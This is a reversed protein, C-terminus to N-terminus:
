RMADFSDSLIKVGEDIEDATVNLMPSMRIINGHLGGAGILLGRAKTEVFLANKAAPNPTRDGRTEDVVLEFAQMLGMGRVDGILDPHREQIAKMGVHMREGMVRANETLNQQEIEDLVAHAASTSIPNGGFTSISPKTLSDAIAPTAIVAGLPLGNAIGKAMTMMEPEIGFNEIGWMTGTRGFGTQVEDAIFVGGYKRVIEAAVEFYKKPPVIFGGVGQIPEALMGAIQGTTTGVIVEEIDRACQMNCRDPQQGFPCRYCYPSHAHKVAPIQTPLARWSSHATLSQALMTRGSYGHRLAIIETNGTSLQAMMVATEDAETGSATFFSKELQGPTINALREALEVMPVTPYLASTHSLRQVQAIVAASVRENNHGVSVTLIGGFFDLYETGDLDRVRSGQGSELVVAEDYYTRAAPFLHKAHKARITASDTM